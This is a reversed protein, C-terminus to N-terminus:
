EAREEDVWLRGPLAQLVTLADPLFRPHFQTLQHPM